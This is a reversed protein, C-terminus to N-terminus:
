ESVMIFADKPCFSAKKVKAFTERAQNLDNTPNVAVATMGGRCDITVAKYGAREARRKQWMANGNDKFTGIVICYKYPVPEVVESRARMDPTEEMTCVTDVPAALTDAPACVTDAPACLTDAPACLTDAPASLTDTQVCLTDVPACPCLTDECACLTDVPARLTDAPTEVTKTSPAFQASTPRGAVMRFFDCGSLSFVTVAMVASAFIKSKM